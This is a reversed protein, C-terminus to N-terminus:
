ELKEGTYVMTLVVFVYAQIAGIFISFAIWLVALLLGPVMTLIGISKALDWILGLVIEGAFINGFLRLGLTMYSTFQDIINIPLLFAYPSFYVNKVYKKFGLKEVSLYHSLGISVLALILPVLPDATASRLYTVGDYNVHVILGLQNTVFIFSFLVFAFFKLNDGTRNSLNDDVIGNTFEIIMELVNQKGTPKMTLRRAMWTFVIFVIAMAVTISIVTPWDFKLGAIVFSATKENM